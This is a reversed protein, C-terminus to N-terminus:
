EKSKGGPKSANSGSRGGRSTSPFSGPNFPKFEFKPGKLQDFKTAQEATLTELVERETEKRIQEARAVMEEFQKRRDKASLAKTEAPPPSAAKTFREQQSRFADRIKRKQDADLDLQTAVQDDLLAFLGRRQVGIERLRRSQGDDLMKFLEAELEKELENRKRMADAFRKRQEEKSLNRLEDRRPFTVDTWLKAALAIAKKDQDDTLKLEKRVEERRVMSLPTGM